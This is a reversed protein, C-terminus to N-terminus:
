LRNSLPFNFHFSGKLFSFQQQSTAAQRQEAIRNRSSLYEGLHVVHSKIRRLRWCVTAATQPGVSSIGFNSWPRQWEQIFGFRSSNHLSIFLYANITISFPTIVLKVVVHLLVCAPQKRSQLPCVEKTWFVMLHGKWIVATSWSLDLRM